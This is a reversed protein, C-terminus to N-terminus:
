CLVSGPVLPSASLVAVCTPVPHKTAPNAKHECTYCETDTSMYSATKTWSPATTPCQNQQTSLVAAAHASTETRFTCVAMGITIPALMPVDIVFVSTLTACLLRRASNRLANAPAVTCSM